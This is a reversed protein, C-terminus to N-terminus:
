KARVIQYVNSLDYVKYRAPQTRYEGAYSLMLAQQQEFDHWGVFIASHVSRHHAHNIHSLFDGPKILEPNAFPGKHTGKFVVHRDTVPNEYGARTYITNAYDWCSGRVVAHEYLVMKRGTELVARGGPYAQQEAQELFAELGHKKVVKVPKKPFFPREVKVIKKAEIPLREPLTQCASLLLVVTLVVSIKFLM